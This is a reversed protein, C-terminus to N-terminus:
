SQISVLGESLAGGVVPVATSLMFRISRLGLADARSAVATKISLVSVYAGALFSVASTILTKIGTILKQLQLEARLGSCIGVGLFCNTVPIFVNSSLLSLGQSLMLLMSNTSFSATIGGSAAVIACFVPIFAFIFDSAIKVSSAGLAVSPSIKVILVLSVSLASVTSYLSNMDSSDSKISQFFASLIVCILIVGIGELPNEARESVIKFLVNVVNELSLSTLSDIDFDSIGLENLFDNTEEGLTTEFFSFDYSELYERYKDEELEQSSYANIPIILFVALSFLFIIANKM